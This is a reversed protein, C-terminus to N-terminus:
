LRRYIARFGPCYLTQQLLKLLKWFFILTYENLRQDFPLLNLVDHIKDRLAGFRPNIPQLIRLQNILAAPWLM